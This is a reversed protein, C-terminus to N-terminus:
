GRSRLHVISLESRRTRTSTRDSQYQTRESYM